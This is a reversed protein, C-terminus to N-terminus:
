FMRSILIYKEEPGVDKGGSVQREEVTVKFNYSEIEFLNM